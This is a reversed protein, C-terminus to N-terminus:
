DDHDEGGRAVLATPTGGVTFTAVVDLTKLSLVSVTGAGPNTFFGYKRDGDFALDHHGFHGEVASKGVKLEKVSKADALDGDGNPDLAIVELVDEADADKVRDHFVFAYAKGDV